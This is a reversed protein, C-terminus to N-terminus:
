LLRPATGIQVDPTPDAAQGGHAHGHGQGGSSGACPSGGLSKLDSPVTLAYSCGTYVYTILLKLLLMGADLVKGSRLLQWVYGLM